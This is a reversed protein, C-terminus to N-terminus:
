HNECWTPSRRPSIPITPILLRSSAIGVIGSRTARRGAFLALKATVLPTRTSRPPVRDRACCVKFKRGSGCPCRENRGVGVFPADFRDPFEELFALLPDDPDLEDHHLLTIARNM